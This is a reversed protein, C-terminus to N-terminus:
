QDPAINYYMLLEKAIAFFTPAATEAGFISSSPENYKVLMVFKPNDAPAFGVFSAITKEADYHGAVPIQATGTKGAIKFGKPAFAQAEGKAVAEVMMNTVIKAADSSIPQGLVKPKIKILKDDKQIAQVVEPQMLYGGNAIASIARVMQIPTAALGQGFSATALDIERWDKKPRIEPSEEDQLDINTSSGLGFSEIYKYIKEVGLKRGVFVMGTNDSHVIVDTMTADPNYKNNWTRIQYNAITVPGSCIDCKTDPKVLNENVAAAMVLAKFTSGPEYSDAVAPNKFFEKSFQAFNNPNYNPYSAMALVAGTKPEMIIVTGSKAGYKEMGVKLNKEVIYQVSRDINLILNQGNKPERKVFKGTLIPVGQADKEETLLGETGKLYGNYFGEIGFYGTPKGISDSGVFGLIHAASSAEPYFRSAGSEFGVGTLNLKDVEAKVELSVDRKLAAWYLDQSLKSKFDDRLVSIQDPTDQSIIKALKLAVEDKGKIVKPLGYLLFSPKNSALISNDSSLILGRPADLTLSTLHQQEAKASLDDFRLVQWYFLRIAVVALIM